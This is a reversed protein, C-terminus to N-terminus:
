RRPEIHLVPDALVAYKTALKRQGREDRFILHGRRTEIIESVLLSMAGWHFIMTPIARYRGSADDRIDARRDRRAIRSSVM